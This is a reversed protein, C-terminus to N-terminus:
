KGDLIRAEKWESVSGRGIRKKLNMKEGNFYKWGVCAKLSETKLKMTQVYNSAHM